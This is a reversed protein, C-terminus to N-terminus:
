GEPQRSAAWRPTLQGGRRCVGGRLVRLGPRLEEHTMEALPNDTLQGIETRQTARWRGTPITVAPESGVTPLTWRPVSRAQDLYDRFPTM